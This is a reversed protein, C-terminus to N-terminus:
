DVDRSTWNRHLTQTSVTYSLAQNKMPTLNVTAGVVEAASEVKQISAEMEALATYTGPSVPSPLAEDAEEQEEQQEGTELNEGESVPSPVGDAPAPPDRGALKAELASGADPEIGAERMLERSALDKLHRVYYSSRLLEAEPLSGDTPHGDMEGRTNGGGDGEEAPGFDLKGGGSAGTPSGATPTPHLQRGSSERGSGNHQPTMQISLDGAAEVAAKFDSGRLSSTLTFLQQELEANARTTMALQRNGDERERIERKYAAEIEKRKLVEGAHTEEMLAIKEEMDKRAQRELGAQKEAQERLKREKRELKEQRIKQKQEQAKLAELKRDEELKFRQQEADFQRQVALERAKKEDRDKRKRKGEEAAMRNMQVKAKKEAEERAQRELVVKKEAEERAKRERMERIEATRQIVHDRARREAEERALRRARERVKDEVDQHNRRDAAERMESKYRALEQKRLALEHARQEAREKAEWALKDRQIREIQVRKSNSEEDERNREEMLNQIQREAQHLARREKEGAERMAEERVRALEREMRKRQQARERLRENDSDTASQGDVVQAQAQNCLRVADELGEIDGAPSGGQKLRALEKRMKVLERRATYANLTLLAVQEDSGAPAEGGLSFGGSSGMTDGLAPPMRQPSVQPLADHRSASGLAVAEIVGGGETSGMKSPGFQEKVWRDAEQKAWRDVAEEKSGGQSEIQEM